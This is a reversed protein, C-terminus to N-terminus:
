CTQKLTSSNSPAAAIQGWQAAKLRQRIAITGNIRDITTSVTGTLAQQALAMSGIAAQAHFRGRYGESTEDLTDGPMPVDAIFGSRRIKNRRLRHQRGTGHGLLSSRAKDTQKTPGGFSARTSVLTALGRTKNARFRFEPRRLSQPVSNEARGTRGIGVGHVAADARKGSHCCIRGAM